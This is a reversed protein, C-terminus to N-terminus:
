IRRILSKPLKMEQMEEKNRRNINNTAHGHKRSRGAQWEKGGREKHVAAKSATCKEESSYIKIIDSSIVSTFLIELSGIKTSREFVKM